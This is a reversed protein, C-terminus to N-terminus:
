TKAFIQVLTNKGIKAYLASNGKVLAILNQKILTAQKDDGDEIEDNVDEEFAEESM